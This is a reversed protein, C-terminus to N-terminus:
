VLIFLLSLESCLAQMDHLLKYISPSDLDQFTHLTLDLFARFSLPSLILVVSHNEVHGTCTALGMVEAYMLMSSYIDRDQMGVATRPFTRIHVGPVKAKWPDEQDGPVNARVDIAIM